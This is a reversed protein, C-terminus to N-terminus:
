SEGKNEFGRTNRMHKDDFNYKTKKKKKEIGPTDIYPISNCPPYM